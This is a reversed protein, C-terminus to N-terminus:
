WEDDVNTTIKMIMFSSLGWYFLGMIVLRNPQADREHRIPNMGPSDPEPCWHLQLIDLYFRSTFEKEEDSNYQVISGYPSYLTVILPSTAGHWSWWCCSNLCIFIYFPPSPSRYHHLPLFIPKRNFSFSSHDCRGMWGQHHNSGENMNDDTAVDGAGNNEDNRNLADSAINNREIKVILILSKREEWGDLM